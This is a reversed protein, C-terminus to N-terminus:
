LKKGGSVVSLRRIIVPLKRFVEHWAPKPTATEPVGCFDSLLVRTLECVKSFAFEACRLDILRSGNCGTFGRVTKTSNNSNNSSYPGLQYVSSCCLRATAAM